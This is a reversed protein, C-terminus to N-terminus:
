RANLLLYGHFFFLVSSYIFKFFKISFNLIVLSCMKVDSRRKSYIKTRQHTNIPRKDFQANVGKLNWKRKKSSIMQSECIVFYDFGMCLLKRKPEM